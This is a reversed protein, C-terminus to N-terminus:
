FYGSGINPGIRVSVCWPPTKESMWMRGVGKGPTNVRKDWLMIQGDIAGIMLIDPSFTASNDPSLLPPANKPPAITSSQSSRAVPQIQQSSSSEDPVIGGQGLPTNTNHSAVAQIASGGDHPSYNDIEGDADPEDDFLPDFSADSKSDTDQTPQNSIPNHNAFAASAHSPQYDHIKEVGGAASISFKDVDAMSVDSEMKRNIATSITPYGDSEGGTDASSGLSFPQTLPNLPRVAIAVLQAGHATFRRVVQGTNLDWQQVFPQASILSVTTNKSSVMAEGDWSASFLGHEDHDISLASVPGRHGHLVHILKGPDHRVTFLNIHGRQLDRIRSLFPRFFM